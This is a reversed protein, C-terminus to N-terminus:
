ESFMLQFIESLETGRHTTLSDEDEKYTFQVLLENSFWSQISDVKDERGAKFLVALREKFEPENAIREEVDDVQQMRYLPFKPLGDEDELQDEEDVVEMVQYGSNNNASCKRKLQNVERRLEEIMHLQQQSEFQQQLLGNHLQAQDLNVQKLRRLVKASPLDSSDLSTTTTTTSSPNTTTSTSTRSATSKYHQAAKNTPAFKSSSTRKPAVMPLAEVKVTTIRPEEEREEHGDAQQVTEDQQQSDDFYSEDEENYLQYKDIGPHSRQMHKHLNSSGGGAKLNMLCRKCTYLDNDKDDRIFHTYIPARFKGM